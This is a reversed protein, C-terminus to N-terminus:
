GGMEYKAACVPGIGRDVSEPDDLRRGCVLCSEHSKGLAGVQEVSLREWDPTVFRTAAGLYTYTIETAGDISKVLLKGSQQGLYVRYIMATTKDMYVGAKIESAAPAEAKPQDFLLDILGSAEGRTLVGEVTLRRARIVQLEVDPSITRQRLLNRILEFQADTAPYLKSSTRM